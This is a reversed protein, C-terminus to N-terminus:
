IWCLWLDPDTICDTWLMGRWGDPAAADDVWGAGFTGDPSMIAIIEGCAVPEGRQQALACEPSTGYVGRIPAWTAEVSAYRDLLEWYLPSYNVAASASPAAGSVAVVALVSAAIAFKRRFMTKEKPTTKM